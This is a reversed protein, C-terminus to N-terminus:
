AAAAMVAPQKRITKCDDCIDPWNWVNETWPWIWFREPQSIGCLVTGDRWMLHIPAPQEAGQPTRLVQLAVAVTHKCIVGRYLADKCSCSSLSPTLTVGYDKGDGNRVLARIETTTQRTITLTLTGAALADIARQLRDLSVHQLPPLLFSQLQTM